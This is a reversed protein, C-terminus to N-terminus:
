VKEVADEDDDDNKVFSLVAIIVQVALIIIMVITYEDTYDMRLSMDETFLFVVASAIGVIISLVRKILSKKKSKEDDNDEDEKRRTFYAVFLLVTILLTAIALLLNVLAWTNTYAAEPVRPDIIRTTPENAAQSPATPTPPNVIVTAPAAVVPAVPAAAALAIVVPAPIAAPAVPPLPAPLPFPAPTPAPAPVPTPTPTPAPAPPTPTAQVATVVLSGNVLTVDYNGNVNEGNENTIVWTAIQSASRGVLTRAGIITVALRDEGALESNAFSNTRIPFGDFVKSASGATITVSLKNITVTAQAFADAYGVKSAKVFVTISDSANTFTPINNSWTDNESLRYSITANQANAV